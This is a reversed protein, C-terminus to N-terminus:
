NLNCYIGVSLMRIKKIERPLVGSPGYVEVLVGAGFLGGEVGPEADVGAPNKM